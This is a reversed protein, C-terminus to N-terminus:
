NLYINRPQYLLIAFECFITAIINSRLIFTFYTNSNNWSFYNYRANSIEIQAAGFNISPVVWNNKFCKFYNLGRLHYNYLLKNIYSSFHLISMKRVMKCNNLLLYIHKLAWCIQKVVWKFSCYSGNQQFFNFGFCIL